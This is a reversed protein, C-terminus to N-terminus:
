TMWINGEIDQEMVRSSEDFGEIKNQFVIDGEIIKHLLLGKYTGEIIFEPKDRLRLFTWAGLVESIKRAEGDQIRFAGHHHGVLLHDSLKNISYVQGETNPIYQFKYDSSNNLQRSFMGNNTGLYLNDGDLYGTYGTGPL